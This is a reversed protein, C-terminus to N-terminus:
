AAVAATPDTMPPGGEAAQQASQQVLAEKMTAFAEPSPILRQPVHLKEGVYRAFEDPVMMALGMQPGFLGMMTEAYQRAAMLDEQDQAQALPSMFEINIIRGDVKFGGLDVLGLEDLIYLCRNILPGMLEFQLKGFASGIRKALEAQRYAIETATKVPLDVRGLPEAFLTKYIAQQLDNFLFQGLNLDGTSPLPMISAGRPGGNSEVPIFCAPGFQINDINVVGDDTYTYIGYVDRSGKKLLLEKVKNLCKIDPLAKLVPGRSYVEDSKGPWRFIVWPSSAQERNVILHQGAEIIVVYRYGPSQVPDYQEPQMVKISDAIVGEVVGVRLEPNERAKEALEAPITAEPWTAEINRLPMRSYRFATDVRGLPGEELYIEGVHVSTFHFPKSTDGKQVLLAGVGFALDMFSEAIQTDFNSARLADFLLATIDELQRDANPRQEPPIGNGARLKVWQKTPPVLSSQLNSVFSDLAVMATSDFVIDANNKNQGPAAEDYVQRNPAAYDLADKYLQDWNAKLAKAMHFRKLIKAVDTM